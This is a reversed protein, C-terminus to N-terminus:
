TSTEYLLRIRPYGARFPYPCIEFELVSMLPNALQGATITSNLRRNRLLNPIMVVTTVAHTHTHRGNHQPHRERTPQRSRNCRTASTVNAGGCVIHKGREESSLRAVVERQIEEHKSQVLHDRRASHPVSKDALGRYLHVCPSAEEGAQDADVAEKQSVYWPM